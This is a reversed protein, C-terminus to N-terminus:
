KRRNYNIIGRLEYAEPKQAAHPHEAVLMFTLKNFM